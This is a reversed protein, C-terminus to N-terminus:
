LAFGHGARAPGYGAFKGNLFVRYYTSGTLKLVYTKSKDAEFDCRFGVQLNKTTRKNKLWISKAKEFM